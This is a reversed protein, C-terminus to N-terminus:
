LVHVMFMFGICGSHLHGPVNCIVANQVSEVSHCHLLVKSIGLSKLLLRYFTGPHKVAESLRSTKSYASDWVDHCCVM